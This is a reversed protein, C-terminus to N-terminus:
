MPFRRGAHARRRATEPGTRRRFFSSHAFGCRKRPRRRRVAPAAAQNDPEGHIVGYEVDNDYPRTDGAAPGRFFEALLSELSQQQLASRRDFMALVGGFM